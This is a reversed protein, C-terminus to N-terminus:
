ISNAIALMKGITGIWGQKQQQSGIARNVRQDGSTMHSSPYQNHDIKCEYKGDDLLLFHTHNKELAHTHKDHFCFLTDTPKTQESLRSKEDRIKSLIKRTKMSLNSWWAIGLLIANAQKGSLARLRSVGEGILKAAGNNLGATIVWTAPTTAAVALSEMFEKEINENM